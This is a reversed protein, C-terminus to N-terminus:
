FIKKMKDDDKNYVNIKSQGRHNYDLKVIIHDYEFKKTDKNKIYIKTLKV